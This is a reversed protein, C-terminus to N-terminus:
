NEVELLEFMSIGERKLEEIEKKFHQTPLSGFDALPLPLNKILRYKTFAERWLGDFWALANYYLLLQEYNSLQARLTKLYSYKQPTDLFDQSIVYNVTQFLHRYYHGLRNVHGDYPFYWFDVNDIKDEFDDADFHITKSNPHRNFKAQAQWQLNDLFAKVEAFLSRQAKTLAFYYNKESAHGIGYFFIKYTLDMIEERTLGTDKTEKEAIRYFNVVVRYCYRLEYFMPVFCKNGYVKDSINMENVNAKHLKLLEFFRNEFREIKWIKEQEKAETAQRALETKFQERQQVNAKYQIYFALFTLVAALLAIFPGAVGNITDGIPGTEKFSMWSPGKISLLMPLVFIAVGGILLIWQMGIRLYRQEDVDLSKWIEKLTKLM